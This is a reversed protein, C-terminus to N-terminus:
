GNLYVVFKAGAIEPESKNVCILYKVIVVTGVIEIVKNTNINRFKKVTLEPCVSLVMNSSAISLVNLM